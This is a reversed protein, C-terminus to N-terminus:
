LTKTHDILGHGDQEHGWVNWDTNNVSSSHHLYFWKCDDTCAFSQVGLSILDFGFDSAIMWKHLCNCEWYFYFDCIVEYMCLLCCRIQVDRLHMWLAITINLYLFEYAIAVFENPFELNTMLNACLLFKFYLGLTHWTYLDSARTSLLSKHRMCIGFIGQFNTTGIYRNDFDLNPLSNATNAFQIVYKFMIFANHICKHSRWIQHQRGHYLCNCEWLFLIFYFLWKCDKAHVFSQVGLPIVDFWFIAQLQGYM